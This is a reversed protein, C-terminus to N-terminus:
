FFPADGGRTRMKLGELYTNLSHGFSALRVTRGVHVYRGKQTRDPGKIVGKLPYKTLFDGRNEYRTIRLRKGINEAFEQDGVRPSAFCFIRTSPLLSGALVAIAAGMSHGTFYVTERGEIEKKLDRFVHWMSKHYGEHVRGPGMWPVLDSQLSVDLNAFRGRTRLTGRIAVVTKSGKHGVWCVASKNTISRYSFGLRQAEMEGNALYAIKACRAAELPTM